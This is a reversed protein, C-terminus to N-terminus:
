AAIKFIKVVLRVVSVCEQLFFANWFSACGRIRVWRAKYRRGQDLAENYEDRLDGITPAFVADRTKKSFVFDALSLLTAGPPRAIRKSRISRATVAFLSTLAELYLSWAMKMDSKRVLRTPWNDSGEAWVQSTGLGTGHVGKNGYKRRREDWSSRRGEWEGLTEHPSKVDFDKRLATLEVELLCSDCYRLTRGGSKVIPVERNKCRECLM